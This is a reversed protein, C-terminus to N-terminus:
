ETFKESNVRNIQGRRFENPCHLNIYEIRSAQLKNFLTEPDQSNVAALTAPGFKGDQTVGLVMQVRKIGRIWSSWVMDTISEAVSQSKIQDAKVVDWFQWKLINKVTDMTINEMDSVTVDRKLYQAYTAPCVGMNTGLLEGKYWNASDHEDCQYGGEHILLKDFYINVDAMHDTKIILTFRPVSGSKLGGGSLFFLIGLILSYIHRM